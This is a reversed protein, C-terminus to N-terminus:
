DLASGRPKSTAQGGLGEIRQARDDSPTLVHLRELM